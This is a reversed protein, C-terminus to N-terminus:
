SEIRSARNSSVQWYVYPKVFDVFFVTLYLLNTLLYVYKEKVDLLDILKPIGGFKRCFKRSKRIRGLNAITEAALIQVDRAPDSLLGVMLPIAGLDTVKKRIEINATIDKLVALAGLICCLDRTELLNVLLELGGIEQIARQNVEITLDHDKLCSLAVMTATQNGAKMYKVLKQIHWYEPPIETSKILDAWNDESSSTSSASSASTDEGETVMVIRPLGVTDQGGDASFTSINDVEGM